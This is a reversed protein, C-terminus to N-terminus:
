LYRRLAAPVAEVEGPAEILLGTRAIADRVIARAAEVEGPAEILLGTRAIADRVIARAAEVELPPVAIPKMKWWLKRLSHKRDSACTAVQAHEFVALWFAQQTPTLSTMDDVAILVSGPYAYIAPIIAATLDRISLRNVHRRISSWEIARPAMADYKKALDLASPKLIGTEILRRAMQVFQGKAQHESLYVLVPGRRGPAAAPEEPAEVPEADPAGADRAVTDFQRWESRRPEIRKLAARLVASKGIGVPGTLVVHKGKKIERVVQDILAERGVLTLDENAQSDM